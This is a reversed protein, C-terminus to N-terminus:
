NEFAPRCAETWRIGESSGQNESTDASARTKNTTQNSFIENNEEVSTIALASHKMISLARGIIPALQIFGIDPKSASRDDIVVLFTASSLSIAV